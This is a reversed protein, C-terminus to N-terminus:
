QRGLSFDEFGEPVPLGGYPRSRRKDRVNLKGPVSREDRRDGRIYESYTDPSGNPFGAESECNVGIQSNTPRSYMSPSPPSYAHDLFPHTDYGQALSIPRPTPSHHYGFVPSEPYPLQTVSPSPPRTVPVPDVTFFRDNSPTPLAPPTPQTQSKPQIIGKAREWMGPKVVASEPRTLQSLAEQRATRREQSMATVGKELDEYRPGRLSNAEKFALSEREKVMEKTIVKLEGSKWKALAKENATCNHCRGRYRQYIAYGILSLLLLTMFVVAALMLSALHDSWPKSASQEQPSSIGTPLASPSPTSSAMVTSYTYSPAPISSTATTEPTSFPASSILASPYITVFDTATVFVVGSMNASTRTQKLNNLGNHLKSSLITEIKNDTFFKTPKIYRSHAFWTHSYYMTTSSTRACHKTDMGRMRLAM